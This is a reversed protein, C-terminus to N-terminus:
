DAALTLFAAEPDEVFRRIILYRARLLEAAVRTPSNGIRLWILRPPAGFVMSRQYFDSDKSVLLFGNDGAYPWIHRDAAGLLGVDRIHASGPFIDQLAAVLRYSLNEDFLLKM